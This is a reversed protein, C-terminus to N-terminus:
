VFRSAVVAGAGILANTGTSATPFEIATGLYDIVVFVLIIIGGWMLIKKM